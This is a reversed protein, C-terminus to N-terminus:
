NRDVVAVFSSRVGAALMRVVVALKRGALTQGVAMMQDVVM